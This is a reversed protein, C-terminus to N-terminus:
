SREVLGLGYPGYKDSILPSISLNPSRPVAEAQGPKDERAGHFKDSRLSVRPGCRRKGVVSVLLAVCRKRVRRKDRPVSCLM